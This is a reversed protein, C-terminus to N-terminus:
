IKFLGFLRCENNIIIILKNLYYYYFFPDHRLKNNIFAFIEDFIPEMKNYLGFILLQYGLVM